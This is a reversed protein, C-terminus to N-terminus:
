VSGEQGREAVIAEMERCVARTLDGDIDDIDSAWLMNGIGVVARPLINGQDDCWIADGAEYLEVALQHATFTEGNIIVNM